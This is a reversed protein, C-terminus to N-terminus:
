PLLRRLAVGALVALGASSALQRRSAGSRYAPADWCGEAADDDVEVFTFDDLGPPKFQNLMEMVGGGFALSPIILDDGCTYPDMDNDGWSAPCENSQPPCDRADPTAARRSLHSGFPRGRRVQMVGCDDFTPNDWLRETFSKCLRITNTTYDTYDPQDPDCGLCYFYRVEPYMMPNKCGPGLGAILNEFQIQDELDHGPICCANDNYDQCFKLYRPQSRRHRQAPAAPAAPLCPPAGKHGEERDPLM